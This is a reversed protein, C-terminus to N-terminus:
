KIPLKDTNSADDLAKEPNLLDKNEDHDKIGFKKCLVTKWKDKHKVAYEKKEKVIKKYKNDNDMSFDEGYKRVADRKMRAKAVAAVIMESHYKVQINELKNGIYKALMKSQSLVEKEDYTESSIMDVMKGFDGDELNAKVRFKKELQLLANYVTETQDDRMQEYLSEELEHSTEIIAQAQELSKIQTRLKESRRQTKEYGANIKEKYVLKKDIEVKGTSYMDESDLVSASYNGFHVNIETHGDALSKNFIFPKMGSKPDKLTFTGDENITVQDRVEPDIFVNVEVFKKNGLSLDGLIKKTFDTPLINYQNESVRLKAM